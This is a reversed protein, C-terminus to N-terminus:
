LGNQILYISLEVPNPDSRIASDFNQVPYPNCFDRIQEVSSHMRVHHSTLFKAKCRCGPYMAVHGGAWRQHGHIAAVPWRQDTSMETLM